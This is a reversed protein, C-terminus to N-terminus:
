RTGWGPRDSGGRVDERQVLEVVVVTWGDGEKNAEAASAEALDRTLHVEGDWDEKWRGPRDWCLVFWGLSDGPVTADPRIPHTRSSEKLSSSRSM